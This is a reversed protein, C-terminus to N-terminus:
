VVVKKSFRRSKDRGIRPIFNQVDALFFRLVRCTRGWTDRVAAILEAERRLAPVLCAVKAPRPPPSSVRPPLDQVLWLANHVTVLIGLAGVAEADAPFSAALDLATEFIMQGALIGDCDPPVDLNSRKMSNCQQDRIMCNLVAGFKLAPCPQNAVDWENCPWSVTNEEVRALEYVFQWPDACQEQPAGVADLPLSAHLASLYLPQVGM